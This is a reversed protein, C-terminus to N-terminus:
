RDFGVADVLESAAKRNKAVETIPLTDPRLAGFSAIAPDIAVGAKVPYEYNIQAHLSQGAESVMFAMFRLANERNPAHKAMAM